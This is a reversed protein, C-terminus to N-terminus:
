NVVVALMGNCRFRRPLVRGVTMMLRAFVAYKSWGVVPYDDILRCDAVKLGNQEVLTTLTAPCFWMTHEPNSCTNPFKLWGYIVNPLGLSYPTTLVLRGGPKVHAAASRLFGAPNGVHEILEGAVVTDFERGLDFDQADASYLNEFGADRAQQLRGEDLDIGWVDDFARILRRHVWHPSDLPVDDHQLEGLCGVHLVSPGETVDLIEDARERM